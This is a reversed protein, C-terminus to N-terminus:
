ANLEMQMIVSKKAEIKTQFGLRTYLRIAPNKKDVSLSLHNVKLEQYKKAIQKILETGIGKNRFQEKVALSLEPTESNVYGFGKNNEDFLRGWSAGILVSNEVAVLCLDFKESGFDAIYKALSPDEIISRPLKPQGEEIFIADYLMEKLFGVENKALERIIM